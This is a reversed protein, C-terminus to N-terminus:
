RERVDQSASAGFVGDVYLECTVTSTDRVNEVQFNLNYNQGVILRAMDEFRLAAPELRLGRFVRPYYVRDPNFRLAGSEIECIIDVDTLTEQCRNGFQVTFQPRESRTVSVEAAHNFQIYVCDIGAPTPTPTPTPSPTVTPTPTPTATPEEPVVPVDMGAIDAGDAVTIVTTRLTGRDFDGGAVLERPADAVELVYEGPALGPFTYSGDAATVTTLAPTSLDDALYVRITVGGIGAEGADLAADRDDDVFVTGSVSGPTTCANELLNDLLTSLAAFDDAFFLFDSDPDNAIQQLEDDRIARGVGIAFVQIGRARASDATLWPFDGMNSNGDTLVIMVDQVAPRGGELVTMAQRIGAATNTWRGRQHENDQLSTVALAQNGTLDFLTEAEVSFQVAGMHVQDPSVPLGEAISVVFDTMETFELNSISGSEDIVLVLDLMCIQQASSQASTHAGIGVLLAFLALFSVPIKM